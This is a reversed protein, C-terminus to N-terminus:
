FRPVRQKSDRPRYCLKSPYSSELPHSKNLMGHQLLSQGNTPNKRGSSMNHKICYYVFSDRRKRAMQQWFMKCTAPLFWYFIGIQPSPLFRMVFTYECLSWISRKRRGTYLRSLIRVSDSDLDIRAFLMELGGWTICSPKPSSM